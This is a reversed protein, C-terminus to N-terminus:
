NQGMGMEIRLGQSMGALEGAEAVEQQLAKMDKMMIQKEQGRSARAEHTFCVCTSGIEAGLRAYILSIISDVHPTATVIEVEASVSGEHSM